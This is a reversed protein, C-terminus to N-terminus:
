LKRAPLIPKVEVGDHETAALREERPGPRPEAKNGGIDDACVRDSQCIGSGSLAPLRLGLEPLSIM